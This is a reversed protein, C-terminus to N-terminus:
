ALASLRLTKLIDEVKSFPKHKILPSRHAHTHAMRSVSLDLLILVDSFLVPLQRNSKLKGTQSHQVWRILLVHEADAVGAELSWMGKHVTRWESASGTLLGRATFWVSLVFLLWKEQGQTCVTFLGKSKHLMNEIKSLVFVLCESSFLNLFYVVQEHNLVFEDKKNVYLANYGKARHFLMICWLLQIFNRLHEKFVILNYVFSAAIPAIQNVDVSTALNALTLM